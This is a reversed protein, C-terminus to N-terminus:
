APHTLSHHMTQNYETPPFSDVPDEDLLHSRHLSVIPLQVRSPPIHALLLEHGEQHHSSANSASYREITPNHM